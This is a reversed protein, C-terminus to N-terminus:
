ETPLLKVRLRTLGVKCVTPYNLTDVAVNNMSDYINHHM